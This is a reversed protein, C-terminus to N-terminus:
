LTPLLLMVSVFGVWCLHLSTIPRAGDSIALPNEATPTETVRAASSGAARTKTVVVTTTPNLDLTSTMTGSVLLVQSPNLLSLTNGDIVVTGYENGHGLTQSGIVLSDQGLATFALTNSAATISGVAASISAAPGQINIPTARGNVFLDSADSALSYMTGSIEIASGSVLTQSGVVYRNGTGATFVEGEITISASTSEVELAYQVDLITASSTPITVGNVVVASGDQKLSFTTGASVIASGPRLTQTGVVFTGDANAINTSGAVNVPTTAATPILANNIVVVTGDAGISITNEVANIIPVSQTQDDLEFSGPAYVEVISGEIPDPTPSIGLQAIETTAQSQVLGIVSAIVDGIANTTTPSSGDSGDASDAADGIASILTELGATNDNAPSEGNSPQDPTDNAQQTQEPLSGSDSEGPSVPPVTNTASAAPQDPPSGPAAPASSPDTGTTTTPQSVGTITNRMTITVDSMVTLQDVPIHVTPEGQGILNTCSGINPWTAAVEPIGALLSPLDAPLTFHYLNSGDGERTMGHEELYQSFAFDSGDENPISQVVTSTPMIAKETAPHGPTTANCQASIGIYIQSYWLWPTPSTFTMSQLDYAMTTAPLVQSSAYMQANSPLLTNPVGSLRSSNTVYDYIFTPGGVAVTMTTTPM